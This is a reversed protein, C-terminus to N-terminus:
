SNLRTSKRDLVAGCELLDRLNEELLLGEVALLDVRDDLADGAVLDRFSRGDLGLWRLGGRGRGDRLLVFAHRRRGAAQDGDRGSGPACRAESRGLPRYHMQMAAVIPKTRNQFHAPERWRSGTARSLLGKIFVSHITTIAVTTM